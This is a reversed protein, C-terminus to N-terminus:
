AQRANRYDNLTNKLSQEVSVKPKWSSLKKFKANSGIVDYSGSHARKDEKIVIGKVVSHSLLRKLLDRISYSKASCINYIEGRHGKQAATWLAECIDDIDLFDRQGSLNKTEITPPKLGLEIRAIEDAFKGVALSPPLGRGLINFMRAVVVDCGRHVHLLSLSTQMYKVFGYWTEPQAPIDETMLRKSSSPRGYEAATGPIIIRPKFHPIKEITEFLSQTTLFNAEFTKKEDAMRGGALHFIYDPRIDGLIRLLKKRDNLDCPTLAESFSHKRLSIGYLFFSPYKKRFFNWLSGGIFGSAGAIFIKPHSLTSKLGVNIRKILM